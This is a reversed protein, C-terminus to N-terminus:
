SRRQTRLRPHMIDARVQWTGDADLSGRAFGGQFARDADGATAPLLPRDIQRVIRPEDSQDGGGATEQQACATLWLVMAALVASAARRRLCSDPYLSTKMCRKIQSLM